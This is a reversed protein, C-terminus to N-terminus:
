TIFKEKDIKGGKSMNRWVAMTGTKTGITGTGNCFFSGVGCCDAEKM